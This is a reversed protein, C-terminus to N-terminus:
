STAKTMMTGTAKVRTRAVLFESSHIPRGMDMVSDVICEKRGGCGPGM